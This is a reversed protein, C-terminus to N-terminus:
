HTGRTKKFGGCKCRHTHICPHISRYIFIHFAIVYFCLLNRGHLTQRHLSHIYMHLGERGVLFTGMKTLYISLSTTPMAGSARHISPFIISSLFFRSFSAFFSPILLDALSYAICSTNYGDLARERGVGNTVIRSVM